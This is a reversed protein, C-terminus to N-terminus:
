GSLAARGPNGLWRHAAFAIIWGFVLMALLNWILLMPTFQPAKPGAASLPVVIYNMVLFVVVGYALGSWWPRRWM